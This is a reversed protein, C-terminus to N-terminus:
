RDRGAAPAPATFGAAVSVTAASDAHVLAWAAMRGPYDFTTTLTALTDFPASDANCDGNWCVIDPTPGAMGSGFFAAGATRRFQVNTPVQSDSPFTVFRIRAPFGAYSLTMCGTSLDIGTHTTTDALVTVPCSLVTLAYAGSDALTKSLVRISITRDRDGVLFMERNSGGNGNMAGFTSGDSTIVAAEGHVGRGVAQLRADLNDGAATSDHYMRIVYAQDKKVALTWSAANTTVYNDPDFVVCNAAGVTGTVSDGPAISGVTCATGDPPGLVDSGGCAALVSTTLAAAALAATRLHSRTM